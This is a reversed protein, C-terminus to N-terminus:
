GINWSKGEEDGELFDDQMEEEEADRGVNLMIGNFNKFDIEREQYFRNLKKGMKNKM